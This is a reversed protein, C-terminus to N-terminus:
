FLSGRVCKDQFRERGQVGLHTPHKGTEGDIQAVPDNTHQSFVVFRWPVITNPKNKRLGGVGCVRLEAPLERRDARDIQQTILNAMPKENWTVTRAKLHLGEM